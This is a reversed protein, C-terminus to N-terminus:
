EGRLHLRVQNALRGRGSCTPTSGLLNFIEYASNSVILEIEHDHVRWERSRRVVFCFMRIHRNRCIRRKLRRWNILSRHRFLHFHQALATGTM